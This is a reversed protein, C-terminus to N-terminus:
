EESRGQTFNVYLDGVVDFPKFLLIVKAEYGGEIQNIELDVLDVRPDSEVIRTIDNAILNRMGEHNQEFLLDWVASGFNGDMVREGKRTYFHNLLDRKVLEIDTFKSNRLLKTGVSSFGVFIRTKRAM